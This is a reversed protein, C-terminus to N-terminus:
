YWNDNQAKRRIHKNGKSDYWIKDDSRIGKERRRHANIRKVLLVVEGFKERRVAFPNLATYRVCLNDELEFFLDYLSIATANDGSGNM